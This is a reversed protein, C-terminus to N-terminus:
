DQFPSSFTIEVTNKDLIKIEGSYKEVLKKVIYLGIGSGGETYIERFVKKMATDSFGKGNDRYLVRIKDGKKVEISVKSAKGHKISNEVLNNFMSFLGEDALIEADGKQEIEIPFSKRISEIVEGIRIKKLESSELEKTMKLLEIGRELQSKAKRIYEPDKEIEYIEMYSRVASLINSLDHRLMRTLFKMESEYEAIRSLFENIASSLVRIEETGSLEIKEGPKASRVFKELKSIKSIIERDLLFIMSVSFAFIIAVFYFFSILINKIHEPYYPNESEIVFITDQGLVDKLAVEAISKEESTQRKADIFIKANLVESVDSFWDDGLIRGMLLYGRSESFDSPSSPLIPKSSLLVIRGDVKLFGTKGLIEPSLFVKPLEKENWQEDYFKSFVVEGDKKIFVMVNIKANTFTNEVLNSAIYKENRGEIFEYTDDWFAWDICLVELSNIESYFIKGFIESKEKAYKMSHIELSNRELTVVISTLILLLALLILTAILLVLERTKM